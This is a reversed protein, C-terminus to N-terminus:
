YESSLKQSWGFAVGRVPEARTSSAGNEVEHINLAPRENERM